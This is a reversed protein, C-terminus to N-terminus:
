KEGLCILQGQQTCVYVKDGAVAVGDHVPAGALPSEALLKGDALGYARVVNATQKGNGEPLLGAVYSREPTVAMGRLRVDLPLKISWGKGKGEGEVFLVADGSMKGDGGAVSSCALFGCTATEHFAIMQASARGTAQWLQLNKRMAIPRKYWADNLLGLRGGRLRADGAEGSKGTKADFEQEAMQVTGDAANLLDTVGEHDEAQHAWVIKGSAPEVATVTIGGDSGSHRGVACYALADYVLVGGVVPWKSELQGYAIVREDRPAVLLKWVLAGDGARLCYMWGDRAGFLCLGEHVTPPCDIRGGATFTWKPAGTQADFAALRHQDSAAVLALGGAIVPSSLRGGDKLDWEAALADSVPDAVQASWLVDLKEPGPATTGATRLTDGRYTPWDSDSQPLSAVQEGYAPGRVLRAADLPDIDPLPRSELALFGRLMPYCGCAHPFSYVLGNAPVVGASACSNRAATFHDYEGSAFNAFDMSGCMILSSSAVDWSCRHKMSFGAPQVLRKAVSGKQPDLGEWAYQKTGQTSSTHIWVLGDNALVKQYSGGHGIVPYEYSWLHSGDEASVGHNGSRGAAVLVGDYVLVLAPASSSWKETPQEWQLKGDALNLCVFRSGRQGGEDRADTHLYVRSGEALVRTPLAPYKWKLEATAADFCALGDPLDVLVRGDLVLVQKPTRTGEFTHVVRGTDADLALLPGADELVAYVRDGVAALTASNKTAKLKWLLLGNYADRAILSDQPVFKSAGADDSAPAEDQFIYVLRRDTSVVAPVASKRYGTPWNPGAVWRVGSPVDVARDTSVPNGGADHRKHTWQGMAEPRPMVLKAWLGDREVIEAGTLNASKLLRDLSERTLAVREGKASEGLWAVGGPRLVRQVEALALGQEVLLPLDDIVLLGALNDAYPLKKLSGKEVSVVGALKAAAIRQRAASVAEDSTAIGHVLYKGNQSLATTLQGDTVGLHVCFGAQTDLSGLMARALLDARGPAERQSWARSLGFLGAGVVAVVSLVAIGLALRRRM